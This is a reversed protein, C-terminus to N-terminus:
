LAHLITLTLGLEDEAMLDAVTVLDGGERRLNATDVLERRRRKLLLDARHRRDDVPLDLLPEVIARTAPDLDALDAMTLTVVLDSM